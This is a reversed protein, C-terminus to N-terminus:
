KKCFYLWFSNKLSVVWINLINPLNFKISSAASYILHKENLHFKCQKVFLISKACSNKTLKSSKLSPSPMDCYIYMAKIEECTKIYYIAKLSWIKWNLNTKSVQVFPERWTNDDRQMLWGKVNAIKKQCFIPSFPVLSHM